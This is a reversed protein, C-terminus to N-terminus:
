AAVACESCRCPMGGSRAQEGARFAASAVPLAARGEIYLRTFTRRDGHYGAFQIAALRDARTV